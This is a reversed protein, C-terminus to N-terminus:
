PDGTSALRAGEGRFPLVLQAFFSEPLEVDPLGYRAPWHFPLHHTGFLRDIMPLHVAFNRDVAEAEASHHWHHFRPTVLFPDLWRLRWGVNAHIFVAHFSVFVLYAKVPGDAFGLVFLPVFTLGRTLIVDVLHLRSGAIWDLQRSSHHIRHFRWLVPVRHFLRHVAYESLDAVVLIELFQLAGPQSAVTAQLAPSVAWGFFVRAPLLTMWLSFQVLVHSFFFYVLDTVWGRRFVSQRPDLPFLKEMPVFVLALLLVNVLFWDLGLFDSKAVPGTVPVSAGGLLSALLSLALGAIPILRHRRLLVGLLGLFFAFGITLQILARVERMPYIARLAPTTLIAPFHLCLVAGLSLAGLFVSLVGSLWGTRSAAKRAGGALPSM